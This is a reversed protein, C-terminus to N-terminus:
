DGLSPFKGTNEPAKYKALHNKVHKCGGMKLGEQYIKFTRDMHLKFDATYGFEEHAHKVGTCFHSYNIALWMAVVTTINFEMGQLPEFLQIESSEYLLDFQPDYMFIKLNEKSIGITPVLGCKQIFSFVITEAIIQSRSEELEGRELEFASNSEDCAEESTDASSSVVAVPGLLIDVSGHWVAEHGMSNDGVKIPAKCGCPCVTTKEPYESDVTMQESVALKSLLHTGLIAAWTSEKTTRLSQAELIGKIEDRTDLFHALRKFAALQSDTILSIDVDDSNELFQCVLDVDFVKTFKVICRKSEDPDQINRMTECWARSFCCSYAGNCSLIKVFCFTAWQDTDLKKIANCVVDKYKRLQTQVHRFFPREVKIKKCPMREAM